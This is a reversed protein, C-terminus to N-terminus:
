DDVYRKELDKIENRIAGLAEYKGVLKWYTEQDKANGEALYESIAVRNEELRTIVNHFISDAM